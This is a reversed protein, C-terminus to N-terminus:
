SEVQRSGKAGSWGQAGDGHELWLGPSPSQGWVEGAARGPGGLQRGEGCLGLDWTGGGEKVGQWIQPM